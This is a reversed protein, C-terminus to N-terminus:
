NFRKFWLFNEEVAPKIHLRESKYLTNGIPNEVFEGCEQPEHGGREFTRLHAIGGANKIAQVFRKTSDICVVEDDECQWFKVPVPYPLYEKDGVKILRAMPNYGTVKKPDYIYEENKDKEFHHLKGLAIKSIGDSWPHLFVQEYADLVPCFGSQAIVPISGSLVLNTSSIGGMSGGYVFVDRKLHFREMCYHYAKIYSQIAIPSGVNNRIDIGEKESYEHPLGNVDMVAYGNALLYKTFVQEEFQADDTNVSGGAGHCNIVLRTAEGQESYTSPLIIVGNDYFIEEKDQVCESSECSFPACNVPIQFRHKQITKNM